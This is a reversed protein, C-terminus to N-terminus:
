NLSGITGVNKLTIAVDVSHDIEPIGLPYAIFRRYAVALGYCSGTGGLIYRQDLVKGEEADFNIQVDSRLRDALFNGGASVRIHSTAFSTTAPHTYTSFWTLSLYKGARKGTGVLNASLSAQDLQNSVNGVTASADVTISQYPNVRLTAVLPTFNHEAFISSSGTATTFPKSLAATQRLSFSMVERASGNQGIEKGILRQTLSYEVSDRVIPLFPTDVTDFRIIRGQTDTGSTYVYRVRPEIVHKFRQFGGVSNNFIRSFSPGVTEVQGQTYFRDVSEESFTGRGTLPDPDLGASYYTARASIQPRISIWPPTKLQLSLTPFVDTRYYSATETTGAVANTRLYSSSSEMGYYLPTGAIRQPYLRLQGAPLQEYHQQRVFVLERRDALINLSYRPRNKTLYASSYINSLTTLNPDSDFRRFFELNSFDQIDIVGRFGNPLNDQAHQWRYRWRFAEDDEVVGPTIKSPEPDTVGYLSLDGLKVNESPVYRLNVGGGVNGGTTVDATVTADVSDGFPLFYGLEFRTGFEEGFQLRPILFGQSRERKTPWLLRPAWLVPFSKARFSVNRLHAYDDVNVEAHGVHFSWAPRDLNCSTFVGDTLRFTDDDVKEIQSGSFHLEPDMTGTANFFTGTKSNLNYIAQTASIRTPGQDIIVNGEATVDRTKHNLTVKYAQLKIDQYEITVGGQAIYYEDSQAEVTGGEAVSIKTEGGGPRPGPIVGFRNNQAALPASIFLILVFARAAPLNM